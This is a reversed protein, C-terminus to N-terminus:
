MEGLLWFNTSITLGCDQVVRDLEVIAKDICEKTYVCVCACVCVCYVHVIHSWIQILTCNRM